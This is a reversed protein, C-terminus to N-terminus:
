PCFPGQFWFAFLGLFYIEWFYLSLSPCPYLLLRLPFLFTISMGIMTVFYAVLLFEAVEEEMYPPWCSSPILHHECRMKNESVIVVDFSICHQLHPLLQM